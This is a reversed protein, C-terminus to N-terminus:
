DTTEPWATSYICQSVISTKGCLGVAQRNNSSIYQQLHINLRLKSVAILVLKILNELSIKIERLDVNMPCLGQAPYNSEDTDM